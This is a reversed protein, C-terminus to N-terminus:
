TRERAKQFLSVLDKTTVGYKNQLSEEDLGAIAAKSEDANFGFFDDKVRFRLGAQLDVLAQGQSDPGIPFVIRNM